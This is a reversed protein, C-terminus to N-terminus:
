DETLVGGTRRSGRWVCSVRGFVTSTGVTLAAIQPAALAMINTCLPSIPAGLPDIGGERRAQNESDYPFAAWGKTGSGDGTLPKLVCEPFPGDVRRQWDRRPALSRGGRKIVGLISEPLSPFPERCVECLPSDLMPVTM